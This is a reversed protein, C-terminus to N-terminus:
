RTSWRLRRPQGPQRLDRRVWGGRHRRRGDDADDVVDLDLRRPHRQPPGLAAKTSTPTTCDVNTGGYGDNYMWAFDAGIPSVDQAFISMASTYQYGVPPSPDADTTAGLLAATNLSGDLGSFEPLGRDGREEDTLILQQTTVSDNAYDSPLVLPGLGELSRAYNINHLVSDICGATSNDAPTSTCAPMVQPPVDATPNSPPVIGAAGASGAACPLAALAVTGAAVIM